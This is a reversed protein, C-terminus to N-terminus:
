ARHIARGKWPACGSGQCWACPGDRGTADGSGGCKACARDTEGGPHGEAPGSSGVAVQGVRLRSVADWGIWYALADLDAAVLEEVPKAWVSAEGGHPEQPEALALITRARRAIDRQDTRLAVLLLVDPVKM